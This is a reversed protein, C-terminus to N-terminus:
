NPTDGSIRRFANDGKSIRHTSNVSLPHFKSMLLVTAKIKSVTHINSSSEEIKKKKSLLFMKASMLESVRKQVEPSMQGSNRFWPLDRAQTHTKEGAHM